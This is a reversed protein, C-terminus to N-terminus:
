DDEDDDDDYEPIDDTDAPPPNLWPPVNPVKEM